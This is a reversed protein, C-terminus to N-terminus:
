WATATPARPASPAKFGCRQVTRTRHRIPSDCGRRAAAGAEWWPIRQWVKAKQGNPRTLEHEENPVREYSGRRAEVETREAAGDVCFTMGFSSPVLSQNSAVDIEDSYDTEPEV